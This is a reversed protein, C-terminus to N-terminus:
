PKATSADATHSPKALKVKQGDRLFSVGAVVVVDGPAVGKRIIARNGVVGKGEVPTRRVTSTKPDFLFISWGNKGTGPALAQVPVLYTPERNERPFVLSLEATMGPRVFQDANKIKAKVPFANANTAASGVDSVVAQFIKDPRNSLRVQGHLGVPVNGILNEPVKIEVEMTGEVFLDLVAKGRQVEEFPEVNRASVVVDFPARLETKELDRKALDLQAQNYSVDQRTSEYASLAQDVARQSTAGADQAQIRIEREYASKKEDFRARARALAARASEVNLEFPKKDLSALLERKKVKNGIDVRVQQPRDFLAFGV